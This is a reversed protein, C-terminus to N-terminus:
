LASLASRLVTSGQLHGLRFVSELSSKTTSVSMELVPSVNSLRSDWLSALVLPKSYNQTRGRYILFESITGDRLHLLIGDGGGVLRKM